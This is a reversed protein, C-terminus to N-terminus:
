KRVEGTLNGQSYKIKVPYLKNIEVEDHIKVDVYYETKGRAVGNEIEEILATAQQGDLSRLFRDQLANSLELLITERKRAVPVPVKPKFTVAKTEPRESYRFVHLKMFGVKEIVTITAEFDEDTETPFGVMVDTSLAIPSLKSRLYAVKELFMTSTYPRGMLKLIRDSGSQLPLHLHPCVTSKLKAITEVFRESLEFIDISSLRVRFSFKSAIEELLVPLDFNNDEPSRYRGLHIGALVVERIGLNELLELKRMIESHPLSKERGRVLPVICYSCRQNCGDQIKLFARTRLGSYPITVKGILFKDKLFNLLIVKQWNDLYIIKEKDTEQRLKMKEATLMAACGLVVVKKAGARLARTILKRTKAEAEATVACSNVFVIEAERLSTASILGAEVLAYFLEESESQNVKCGLTALFFSTNPKLFDESTKNFTMM